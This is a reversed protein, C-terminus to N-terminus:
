ANDYHIKSFLKEIDLYKSGLSVAPVSLVLSLLSRLHGRGGRDLEL